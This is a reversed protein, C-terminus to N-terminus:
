QFRREEKLTDHVEDNFFEYAYDSPSRGVNNKTHQSAGIELLLTVMKRDGMQAAINLATNGLDDKSSELDICFRKIYNNTL